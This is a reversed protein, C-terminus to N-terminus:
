TGGGGCGQWGAQRDSAQERARRSTL